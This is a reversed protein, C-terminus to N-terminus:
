RANLQSEILVVHLRIYAPNLIYLDLFLNESLFIKLFNSVNTKELIKPALKILIWRGHCDM